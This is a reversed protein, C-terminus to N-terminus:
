APLEFTLSAWLSEWDAGSSPAAAVMHVAKVLWVGSQALTLRVRGQADSRAAVTAQPSAQPSAVILANALPRGEFTLRLPLASGARLRYPDAEAVLELRLGLDHDGGDAAGSTPSGVFVLSKACRSFTERGPRGSAGARARARSVGELGELALYAEFKAAELEVAAPLSRYAVIYLGPSPTRLLGAPSQGAIGAVPREGAASVAVFREIQSPDRPVVEGAWDVGVELEVGTTAGVPPRFTAPLLWFDHALAVAPLLLGFLSLVKPARPLSRITRV